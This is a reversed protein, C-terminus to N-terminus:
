AGRAGADFVDERRIVDPETRCEELIDQAADLLNVGAREAIYSLMLQVMGLVRKDGKCNRLKVTMDTLSHYRMSGVEHADEDSGPFAAHIWTTAEKQLDDLPQPFTRSLYTASGTSWRQIFSCRQLANVLFESDSHLTAQLRFNENTEEMYQVFGLVLESALGKRRYESKTFLHLDGEDNCYLMSVIEDDPTAIFACLESGVDTWGETKAQEIAETLKESIEDMTTEDMTHFLKLKEKEYIM